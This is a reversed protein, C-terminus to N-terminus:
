KSMARLLISFAAGSKIYFVKCMRVWSARFAGVGFGQRNSSQFPLRVAKPSLTLGVAYRAPHQTRM